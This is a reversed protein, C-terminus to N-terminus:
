TLGSTYTRWHFRLTPRGNVGDRPWYRVISQKRGYQNSAVYKQSRNFIFSAPSSGREGDIVLEEAYFHEFDYGCLTKTAQISGAM